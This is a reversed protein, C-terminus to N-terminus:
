AAPLAAVAAGWARVLATLAASKEGIDALSDFRALRRDAWTGTLIDSEIMIGSPYVVVLQVYGAQRLNLAGFDHDGLHWSPANWKVRESLGGGAGNIVGRVADIEARLPHELRALFSTLPIPKPMLSFLLAM